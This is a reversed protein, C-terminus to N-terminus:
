NNKVLEDFDLTANASKVEEILSETTECLPIRDVVSGVEIDTTLYIKM